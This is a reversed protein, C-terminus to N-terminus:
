VVQYSYGHYEMVVVTLTWTAFLLLGPTGMYTMDLM